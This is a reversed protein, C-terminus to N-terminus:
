GDSGILYQRKTSFAYFMPAVRAAAATLDYEKVCFLVVDCPGAQHLRDTTLDPTAAFSKEVAEVRLGSVPLHGETYLFPFIWIETGIM